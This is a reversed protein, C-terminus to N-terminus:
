RLGMEVKSEAIGIIVDSTKLGMVIDDGNFTVLQTSPWGNYEGPTKLYRKSKSRLTEVAKSGPYYGTHHPSVQTPYENHEPLSQNTREFKSRISSVRQSGPHYGSHHGSVGTPYVNHEPNKLLKHDFNIRLTPGPVYSPHGSYSTDPTEPYSSLSPLLVLRRHGTRRSVVETKWAPYINIPASAGRYHPVRSIDFKVLNAVPALWGPFSDVSEPTEPYSPNWTVQNLKRSRVKLTVFEPQHGLPNVATPASKPTFQDHKPLVQLRQEGHLRFTQPLLWAPYDQSTLVITEPYDPNHSVVRVRRGRLWRITFESSM